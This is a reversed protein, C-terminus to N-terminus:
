AALTPGGAGRLRKLTLLLEDRSKEFAGLLAEGESRFEGFVHGLVIGSVAWEVTWFGENTKVAQYTNMVAVYCYCRAEDVWSQIAGSITRSKM